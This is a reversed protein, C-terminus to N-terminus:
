ATGANAVYHAPDVGLTAYAKAWVDDSEIGFLLDSNAPLNLWINAEIEQELQGSHWGAYGLSVISHVPGTGNTIDRLISVSSTLGIEHTVAVSEPRMHDHSHLVFGRTSEVPGGIYVPQDGHFRPAGMELTECLHGLDIRASRQNIVVGMAANQDHQCMM